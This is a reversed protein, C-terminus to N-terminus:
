CFYNLTAALTITGQLLEKNMMAPLHTIMRQPHDTTMRLQGKICMQYLDSRHEMIDTDSLTISGRNVTMAILGIHSMTGQSRVEQATQRILAHHINLTQRQLRQGTDALAMGARTQRAIFGLGQLLLNHAIGIFEIGLRVGLTFAIGFLGGLHERAKAISRYIAEQFPM